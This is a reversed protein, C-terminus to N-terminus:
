KNYVLSAGQEQVTLTAQQGLQLPMNHAIHGAPFGMAVPFSFAATHEALMEEAERGFPVANDRMDTMGGVVLGALGDWVGGLSANQLMRDVHYRYEDLDELFLIAGQTDPFWPTGRLSYLVSLNGGIVRGTVLGHRNASHAPTTIAPRRGFLVQRLSELAESDTQAFTSPMPGHLTVLDTQHGIWAHLATVDSFGVLWTPKGRFVAPDLLPLLRACGYGGRACFIARVDPDQWQIQLDHAREADTGGFQRDQAGVSAGLRVRLGWSELLRVAPALEM